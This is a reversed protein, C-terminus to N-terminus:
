TSVENTFNVEGGESLFITDSDMNFDAVINLAPTIDFFFEDIIGKSNVLVSYTGPQLNEFCNSDNSFFNSSIVSNNADLIEAVWDTNGPNNITLSGDNM